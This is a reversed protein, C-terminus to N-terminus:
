LAKSVPRVMKKCKQCKYHTRGGYIALEVVTGCKKHVLKSFKKKHRNAKRNDKAIQDLVDPPIPMMTKNDYVVGGSGIHLSLGKSDSM